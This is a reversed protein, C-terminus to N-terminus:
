VIPDTCRSKCDLILELFIIPAEDSGLLSRAVKYGPEFSVIRPNEAGLGAVTTTSEESM